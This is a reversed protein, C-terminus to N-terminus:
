SKRAERILTLRRSVDDRAFLAEARDPLRRRWNPHEDVTGPLNPAEDLGFLDEAPVILLECPAQAAFAIVADLAPEPQDPAPELGKAVGADSCAQWLSSRETARQTRDAERDGAAGLKERWDIDRGQWWGAIPTLDHTSTMAAAQEDWGSSPTFDGAEDREFPLVRMGMLGREAITDRFGPPVVGLDEGIVLARARHSELAILRLIDQEPFRLYAGDLPEAGSPVVWLRRLGLAHDIRIGGAHRMASRILGIFPAYELRQLAFPSFSTIGWNQGAAQFADPPAGIGIGMMLEEGRSWAHSGGPDLGVALDTVLGIAMGSAPDGARSLSQDTWWQLFLHFDIEGAQDRAFQEVAPADPRRYVEPWDQWGRAGTSAFFHAHLAEFRAHGILAADAGAAFSRFGPDDRKADYLRRLAALKAPVAQQWDILGGAEDDFWGRGADAFWPNLFHRSSPSYPSYRSPDTTFLAHVPSMMVADAGANRAQSVFDALSGFDGFPQEDRLSYIQAATGWPRTGPAIEVCRPPAVIIPLVGGSWELRHYGIATVPPETALDLDLRTGDELVLQAAGYLGAIREGAQLVRCSPGAADGLMAMSERCQAEGDCAFGLGSLVLRLSEPSVRRATSDADEWEISIGAAQALREVAQDTM